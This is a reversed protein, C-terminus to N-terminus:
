RIVTIGKTQAAIKEANEFGDPNEPVDIDGDFTAADKERASEICKKGTNKYYNGSFEFRDCHETNFDCENEVPSYFLNNRFVLGDQNGCNAYDGSRTILQGPMDPRMVITNNEVILERCTSSFHIFNPHEWAKGNNLSVCNRITVRRWVGEARYEEQRGDEGIVPNGRDDFRPQTTEANCLLIAGGDNDHAYNYEFLIDENAIDIDFGEGDLGGHELHSYAAENYRILIEKCGIPWIGANANGTRGLYNSHYSVNKEIVSRVSGILVIGDGGTYSVRNSSIEIRESPYWGNDDSYYRNVGWCTGPRRIWMGTLFIGSRSVRTVVNGVIKVDRYDCPEKAEDSALFIIGGTEYYFRKQPCVAEPDIEKIDIETEPKDYIWNYNVDRVVCNKIVLYELSGAEKVKVFIGILGKPNTVEMESFVCYGRSIEVACDNGDGDFLPLAGKGYSSITLPINRHAVMGGVELTGKFVSGRKVLIELPKELTLIGNLKELSKLPFSESRGDNSDDGNESDFYYTEYSAAGFDYERPRQDFM